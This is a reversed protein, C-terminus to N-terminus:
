ADTLRFTSQLLRMTRAAEKTRKEDDGLTDLISIVYVGDDVGHAYFAYEMPFDGFRVWVRRGNWTEEGLVLDADQSDSGPSGLAELTSDVLDSLADDAGILGEFRVIQVVCSNGDLTWVDVGSTEFDAEFAMFSPYEFEFDALRFHRTPNGRLIAKRTVDGLTLDFPQDVHIPIQEEGLELFFRQPPEEGDEQLGLPAVLFSAVALVALESATRVSVHM